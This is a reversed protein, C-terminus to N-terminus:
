MKPSSWKAPVAEPINRKIGKPSWATREVSIFAAAATFTRREPVYVAAKL